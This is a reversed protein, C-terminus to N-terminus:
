FWREEQFNHEQCSCLPVKSFDDACGARGSCTDEHLGDAWNPFAKNKECTMQPNPLSACFGLGRSAASQVLSAIPGARFSAPAPFKWFQLWVLTQLLISILRSCMFVQCSSQHDLSSVPFRWGSSLWVKCFASVNPMLLLLPNWYTLYIFTPNSAPNLFVQKCNHRQSYFPWKDVPHHLESLHHQAQLYHQHEHIGLALRRHPENITKGLIIPNKMLQTMEKQGQGMGGWSRFCKDDQKEDYIDLPSGDLDQKFEEKWLFVFYELVKIM